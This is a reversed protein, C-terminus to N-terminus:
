MSVDAAGALWGLLGLASTFRPTYIILYHVVTMRHRRTDSVALRRFSRMSSGCRGLCSRRRAVTRDPERVVKPWAFYFQHSVQQDAIFAAVQPEELPFGLALEKSIEDISQFRSETSDSAPATTPTSSTAQEQSRKTIISARRPAAGRASRRLEVLSPLPSLRACILFLLTAMSRLNARVQKSQSARGIGALWPRAVIQPILIRVLVFNVLVVDFRPFSQPSRAGATDTSAPDIQEQHPPLTGPPSLILCSGDKAMRRTAGLADFELVQREQAFLQYQLVGCTNHPLHETLDIM